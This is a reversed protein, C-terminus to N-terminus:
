SASTLKERYHEHLPLWGEETWETPKGDLHDALLDLLRHWGAATRPLEDAEAPLVFDHTLVLRTGGDAPALEWTVRATKDVQFWFTHELLRLVECRTIQDVVRDGTQHTTIYDGGLRLDIDVGWGTWEQIHDSETIAEWVDEIPHDLQREYRLTVRGESRTITGDRM